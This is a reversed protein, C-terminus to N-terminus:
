NMSAQFTKKLELAPKLVTEVAKGVCMALLDEQGGIVAGALAYLVCSVSQNESQKALDLVTDTLKRREETTM